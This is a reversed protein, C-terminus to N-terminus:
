RSKHCGHTMLHHPYEHCAPLSAASVLNHANPRLKVHLIEDREVAVARPVLCHQGREREVGDEGSM